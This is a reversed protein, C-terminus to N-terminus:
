RRESWLSLEAHRPGPQVPRARSPATVTHPFGPKSLPHTPCPQEGVPVRVGGPGCTWVPELM